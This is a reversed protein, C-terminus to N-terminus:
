IEIKGPSEPALLVFQLMREPPGACGHGCCTCACASGDGCPPESASASCQIAVPVSAAPGSRSQGSPPAASALSVLACRLAQSRPNERVAAQTLTMHTQHLPWCLWWLRGRERCSRGEFQPQSRKRGIDALAECNHQSATNAQATKPGQSRVAVCIRRIASGLSQEPGVGDHRQPMKASAQLGRDRGARGSDKGQSASANQCSQCFAMGKRDRLPGPIPPALLCCLLMGLLPCCSATVQRQSEFRPVFGVVSEHAHVGVVVLHITRAPGPFPTELKSNETNGLWVKLLAALYRSGLHLQLCCYCPPRRGQRPLM